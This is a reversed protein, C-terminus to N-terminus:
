YDVRCSAFDKPCSTLVDAGDPTVLIDDEIRVGGWGPVYIGPEITVVMGPQLVTKSTPRLSPAEHVQLGLGHGLGHTFYSGYGADAIWSRAVGDVDCAAIGPRVARIARQQAELVIGYIKELKGLDATPDTAAGNHGTWLVRTLDSKYFVGSAGWDVLVLASEALRHTTPPAHPLAARAGVAVITPFSGAKGGARRVFAEMADALDKECDDPRLMARFMAFAREAIRIAERIQTVEDADKLERLREARDAGGKWAIDQAQDSLAQLETVTLHGSEYGVSRVGLGALISATVETMVQTPPRIHAELGPCEEAIQETFRGDSLLIARSRSLALFSSEGSFGTLYSVNVPNTVLMGDLQERQVAQWLRERRGVFDPM